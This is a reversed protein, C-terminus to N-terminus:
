DVLVEGASTNKGVPYTYAAAECAIVHGYCIEKTGVQDRRRQNGQVISLKNTISAVRWSDDRRGAERSQSNDTHIVVRNLRGRECYTYISIGIDSVTTTGLEITSVMM